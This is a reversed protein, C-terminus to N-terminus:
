MSTGAAVVQTLCPMETTGASSQLRAHWARPNLPVPGRARALMEPQKTMVSPGYLPLQLKLVLLDAVHVGGHVSIPLSTRESHRRFYLRLLSRAQAPSAFPM